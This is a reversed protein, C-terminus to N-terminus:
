LDLILEGGTDTLRAPYSCCILAEGSDPQAMPPALYEVDGSVVRTSCTQCIGSRCSYAPRLGEAEALDLLTGKAPEWTAQHDSKAFKVAVPERDALDEALGIGEGPEERKLTSGKGFFEYHIRADAVSLDKLGEYLQEMFPAPGCLYFDYDDFPLLSKLLDVDVRGTSDYHEGEVDSDLPDSHRM